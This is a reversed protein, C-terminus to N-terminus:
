LNIFDGNRMKWCFLGHVDAHGISVCFGTGAMRSRHEHVGDKHVELRKEPPRPSAKRLFADGM